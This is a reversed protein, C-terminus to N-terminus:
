SRACAFYFLKSFSKAKWLKSYFEEMNSHESKQGIFDSPITRARWNFWDYAVMKSVRVIGRRIQLLDKILRFKESFNDFDNM